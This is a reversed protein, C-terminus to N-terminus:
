HRNYEITGAWNYRLIAMVHYYHGGVADLQLGFFNALLISAIEGFYRAHGFESVGNLGCEKCDFLMLRM